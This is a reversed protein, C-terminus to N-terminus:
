DLRYVSIAVDPCVSACLACGTCGEQYQEAPRHGRPNLRDAIRLTKAPCVSVCLGCSKCFEERVTVRGKSQPM